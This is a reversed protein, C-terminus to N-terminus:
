RQHCNGYVCLRNCVNSNQRGDSGAKRTANKQEENSDNTQISDYLVILGNEEKYGKINFQQTMM